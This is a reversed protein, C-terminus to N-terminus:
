YQELCYRDRHLTTAQRLFRQIWPIAKSFIIIGRTKKKSFLEEELNEELLKVAGRLIKEKKLQSLVISFTVPTETFHKTIPTNVRYM